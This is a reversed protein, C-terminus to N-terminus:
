RKEVLRCLDPVLNTARSKSDLEDVSVQETSLSCKGNDVKLDGRGRRGTSSNM